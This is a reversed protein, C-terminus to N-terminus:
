VSPKDGTNRTSYGTFQGNIDGSARGNLIQLGASKCLDLIIKGQIGIPHDDTNERKLYNDKIYFPVNIPSHKDTVDRVFDRERNQKGILIAWLLFIIGVLINLNM